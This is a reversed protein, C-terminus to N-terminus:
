TPQLLKRYEALTLNTWRKFARRFAQEDKYGVLVSLDSADFAPDNALLTKAIEARAEDILGTLTAGQVAALRQATRLSLRAESAVARPSFVGKRISSFTATRLRLMDESYSGRRLEARIEELHRSALQFLFPNSRPNGLQLIEHELTVSGQLAGESHTVPCEFFASYANSPGNAAFGFNVLDFRARSELMHLCLRWVLAIGVESIRGNDVLDQPHAFTFYATSGDEDFDLAARDGAIDACDALLKLASGFDPAYKAAEGVGGFFTLPTMRAMEISLATGPVRESLLKMIKPATDDPLRQDFGAIQETSLGTVHRIDEATLGRSLAFLVTSVVITSAMMPLPESAQKKDM